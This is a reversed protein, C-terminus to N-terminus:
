WVRIKRVRGNDYRLLQVGKFDASVEQGLLNHRSIIQPAAGSIQDDLNLIAGKEIEMDYRFIQDVGTFVTPMSAVIFYVTTDDPTLSLTLDGDLSNSMNLNHFSVGTQANQVVVQGAFWASDMQTGFQDGRIRFAYNDAVTNQLKYTNFAWAKTCMSDAPRYWGNTGADTYTAAFQKDDAPDAYDNWEVLNRTYQQPTLFDYRNTMHGAWDLFHTRFNSAGILNFYYEQPMETTTSFMGSTINTHAVGAEETLYFLLVSLAYQHVYRQWNQPYYNPFNDFSLWLAVQPIRVLAEAEIFAGVYGYHMLAAFWNASAEIYWQSDGAYAFGPATASYQFVHFTEHAVNVWDNHAGIPLTLYPQGYIDTGQGNGWWNPFTDQGNHLYVNYYFGAPPNPPDQMNLQNLCYTRYRLMSDLLIDADTAYNWNKDWWVCYIGRTMTDCLTTNGFETQLAYQAKTPRPSFLCALLLVLLSGHFHRRIKM